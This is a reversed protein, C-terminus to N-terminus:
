PRTPEAAPRSAHAPPRAHPPQGLKQKIRDRARQEEAKEQKRALM